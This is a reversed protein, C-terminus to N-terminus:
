NHRREERSPNRVLPNPLPGLGAALAEADEELEREVEVERELEKEDRIAQQAEEQSCSKMLREARLEAARRKQELRDKDEQMSRILASRMRIKGGYRYFVFPIPILAFELIALLTGAWHPGLTAYMAPGALPLTAGMASRLVANGALASAAYIGYSYVLYNSAYIFVIGNGIGFPVGALIPVVWHVNPTCTWAFVLEGVPILISAICVVAVMAEPPPKGTVPDPKRSNIFRRILPESCIMMLTGTGIGVYSLGTIGPSWGRDDTFIIPYAVFCLYLIGYIVAIYLNWFICIPEFVAMWLPRSLNVRLLPWFEKKADYRSFWRPDDTEKRRQAARGRLIAPAYTEPVSSILFFSASASCLIVWNTWRWSLYEYVFGGVLPGIVPGNMPGISWISFALARYEESIIDNVTGPANGIMASGAFAGFFRCILITELNKAVGCPIIFIAFIAMAGVYIPRRGYMESLPALIVSGIALGMLYTTVGLVAVTESSIHFDLMMGPLGSTYSTSYCVVTMTSWSICFITLAKRWAPWNQPNGQDDEEWDVEFAPDTTMATTAISVATQRKGLPEGM